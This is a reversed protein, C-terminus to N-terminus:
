HFVKIACVKFVRRVIDIHACFQRKTNAHQGQLAPTTLDTPDRLNLEIIM